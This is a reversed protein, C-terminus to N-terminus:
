RIPPDNWRQVTVILQGSGVVENGDDNITADVRLNGANNTRFPREPNLGAGAPVYVGTNPDMAGAYKEDELEAAVEDFPVAAWTAPMSGIRIDDDTGAEGDAGNAYAVADFVANVLPTLGGNGGVRAINYPPEVQVSDVQTYVAFLGDAQSGGVSIGRGGVAADAAAEARVVITNADASVTELVAVGDGLSVDGSLGTGHVAIEATQGSKLYAPQVAMIHGGSGDRVAVINAGFEDAGLQFARGAIRNGDESVTFVSRNVDGRSNTSRGRWEYGTYLISEGTGSVTSGDPYTAEFSYSYRDDGISEVTMMGQSVGRSPAHAVVRWSGSLDPSQFGKWANWADTEFPFRETLWDVTDTTAIEFWERDRGYFQYETTPWQGLHFHVHLLWENRTRRQLAGRAGSHCRACMLGYEDPFDEIAGPRKELIYRYPETEAPALGQTDSLYKVLARREEASVEVGHMIGMRVITMLWGEPTKRQEAVRSLGGDEQTHCSGCRANLIEPGDAATAVRTAGGAALNLSVLIALAVPSYFGIRMVEGEESKPRVYVRRGCRPKNKIILSINKHFPRRTLAGSIVIIPRSTGSPLPQAPRSRACCLFSREAAPREDQCAGVGLM